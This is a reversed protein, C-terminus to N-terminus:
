LCAARMGTAGTHENQRKELVAALMMTARVPHMLSVSKPTLKWKDCVTANACVKTPEGYQIAGSIMMPWDYPVAASTQDSPIVVMSHRVPAAGRARFNGNPLASMSIGFSGDGARSSLWLVGSSLLKKDNHTRFSGTWTRDHLWSNRHKRIRECLSRRSCRKCIM